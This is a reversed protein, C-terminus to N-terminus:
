DPTDAQKEPEISKEKPLTLPNEMTTPAEAPSSPDNPTVQENSAPPSSEGLNLDTEPEAGETSESDVTATEGETTPIEIESNPSPLSTADEWGEPPLEETGNASEDESPDESVLEESAPEEENEAPVAQEKEALLMEMRSIQSSTMEAWFSAQQKKGLENWLTLCGADSLQDVVMRRQGPSLKNWISLLDSVSMSCLQEDTWKTEQEQPEEEDLIEEAEPPEEDETEPTIEDAAAQLTEFRIKQTHNM